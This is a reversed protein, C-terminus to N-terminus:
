AALASAFEAVTMAHVQWHRSLKRVDSDETVLDVGLRDATMVAAFTENTPRWVLGADKWSGEVEAVLQPACEHEDAVVLVGQDHLERIRAALSGTTERARSVDGNVLTLQRMPAPDGMIRFRGGDTGVAANPQWTFSSVHLRDTDRLQDLVSQSYAGRLGYSDIAWGDVSVETKLRVGLWDPGGAALRLDRSLNSTM